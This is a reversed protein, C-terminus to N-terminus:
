VLEVSLAEIEIFRIDVHISKSDSVADNPAFRM